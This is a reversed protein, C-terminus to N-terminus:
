FIGENAYECGFLFCKIYFHVLSKRKFNARFSYESLEINSIIRAIIDYIQFAIQNFTM